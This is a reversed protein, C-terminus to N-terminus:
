IVSRLYIGLLTSILILLLKDSLGLWSLPRRISPGPLLRPVLRFLSESIAFYIIAALVPSSSIGGVWVGVAVSQIWHVM